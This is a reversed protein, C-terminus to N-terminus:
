NVRKEVVGKVWENEKKRFQVRDGKIFPRLSRSHMNYYKKQKKKKEIFKQSIIEKNIINRYLATKKIPLKTKCMRGFFLECPALDLSAVPTANYELIRYQYDNVSCRSCRKLINKGTAVGLSIREM